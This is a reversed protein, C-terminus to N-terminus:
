SCLLLWNECPSSLCVMGRKGAALSRNSLFGTTTSGVSSAIGSFGNQPLVTRSLLALLIVKIPKAALHNEIKSKAKLALAKWFFFTNQRFIYLSGHFLFQENKQCLCGVRCWPVSGASSSTSAPLSFHTM